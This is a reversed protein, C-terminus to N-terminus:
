DMKTLISFRNNCAFNNVSNTNKNKLAKRNPKSYKTEHYKVLNKEYPNNRHFQESNGRTLCHIINIETAMRCCVFCITKISLYVNNICSNTLTQQNDITKRIFALVSEIDLKLLSHVYHHSTCTPEEQKNYFFQCHESKKCFNYSSRIITGNNKRYYTTNQGIRNALICSTDRIWSLYEYISELKDFDIINETESNYNMFSEMLSQVFSSVSRQDQIISYSNVDDNIEKVIIDDIYIPKVENTEQIVVNEQENSNSEESLETTEIVTEIPTVIEVTNEDPDNFWSEIDSDDNYENNYISNMILM